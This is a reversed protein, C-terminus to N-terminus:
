PCGNGCVRDYCWDWQGNCSCARYCYGPECPGCYSCGACSPRAESAAKQSDCGCGETNQVRGKPTISELFLRTLSDERETSPSALTLYVIILPEIDRFHQVHSISTATVFGEPLVQWTKQGIVLYEIKGDRERALAPIPSIVTSQSNKIIDVLESKTVSSDKRIFM